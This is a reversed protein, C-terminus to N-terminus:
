STRGAAKKGIDIATGGTIIFRFGEKVRQAVTNPNATIGCPVNTQRCLALVSQIAAETLQENRGLSLGLDNPGVFIVSIGKVAIIERINKVGVETEIQLVSILEGNPDLPWVDAKAEYEQSSVGWARAPWGSGQGRQGSPEYDPVGPRQPFRMSRVANLAQEATEITPFMVGHAGADLVQKAMWQNMERGNAPIRVIIPRPTGPRGRRLITAPDIAGQVFGRVQNFDLPNHEMDVMAFDPGPTSMAEAGGELTRAGFFPGFTAVGQELLPVLDNLRSTQGAPTQGAMTAGTEVIGITVLFVLLAHRMSM